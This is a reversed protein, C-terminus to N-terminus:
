RIEYSITVDSSITNEGKPLEAPASPAVASTAMMDAKAYMIPFGGGGETFSTIKVLHVGLDKALVEAKAKADDIAKKRAQAKLGDENDISFNPGNLNSVGISGLGQMIKGADETKRVKVTISESAEYGNIIQKGGCDYNPSVVGPYTPAQPCMTRSYEYKPYASANETKIDKDEVGSTKLFELTKKEIVAVSDQAEKVSKADKLITFNISAIDPVAKVEGHGTFSITAPVDSEGLMSTKKIESYIKIIFFATLIIMLMSLGQWVRKKEISNEM